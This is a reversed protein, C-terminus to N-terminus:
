RRFGYLDMTSEGARIRELFHEEKAVRERSRRVTADVQAAPLIVVGDADAVVMDGRAVPVGGIVTPEGLRGPDDKGTRHVAIWRSFAPFGIAALRETDRVGGDIVLGAIGRRRAAVALVEGWYGHPAGGAQVVLVEGPAALELARHLPLNDAPRAVVPFAPGAVRAGAWAPRVRPDLACDIGSAEYLTATGLELLEGTLPAPSM